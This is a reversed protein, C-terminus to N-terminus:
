RGHKKSLSKALAAIRASRQEILEGLSHELIDFADLVDKRPIDGEHSGSNGLWKLAMLHAGLVPERKAFADIRAHLTLETFKGNASKKKKAVGLHNLLCELAVRLRGACAGPHGWFLEFSAQLEQKVDDPCKEPVKMIAPM